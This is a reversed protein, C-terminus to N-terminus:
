IKKINNFCPSYIGYGDGIVDFGNERPALKITRKCGINVDNSSFDLCKDKIFPFINKSLLWQDGGYPMDYNKYSQIYLNFIRKINDINSKGRIGFLGAGIQFKQGIHDHWTAYPFESQDHQLWQCASDFQRSSLKADIDRILIVSPDINPVFRYFSGNTGPLADRIQYSDVGSKLQEIIYQDVDSCFVM